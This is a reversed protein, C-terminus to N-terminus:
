VDVKIWSQLLGEWSCVASLEPSIKLTAQAQGPLGWGKLCINQTLVRQQGLVQQFLQQKPLQPATSPACCCFLCQAVSEPTALLFSVLERVHAYRLCDSVGVDMTWIRVTNFYRWSYKVEQLRGQIYWNSSHISGCRSAFPCWVGQPVYTNTQTM